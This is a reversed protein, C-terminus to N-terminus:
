TSIIIVKVLRLLLLIVVLLEAKLDLLLALFVELCKLLADYAGAVFILGHVLQVFRVRMVILPRWLRQHHVVLSAHFSDLHVHKALYQRPSTGASAWSDWDSLLGM